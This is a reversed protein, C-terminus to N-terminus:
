ALAQLYASAQQYRALRAMDEPGPMAIRSLDSNDALDALKVVRALPDGGLRIVFAEYSEEDRRSLAQVAALIKLAFGERALDSLTMASDELVDHLVAVIRQEATSVRLMVRLPHLIYAAGGKDQQGEHARAAVAIARELTSM